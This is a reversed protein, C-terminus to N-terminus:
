ARKTHILNQNPRGQPLAGMRDMASPPLNVSRTIQGRSQVVISRLERAFIADQASIPPNSDSVM